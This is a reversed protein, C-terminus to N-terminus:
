IHYVSCKIQLKIYKYSVSYALMASKPLSVFHGVMNDVNYRQAQQNIEPVLIYPIIIIFCVQLMKAFQVAGIKNVKLLVACEIHEM